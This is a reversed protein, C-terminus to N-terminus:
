SFTDEYDEEFDEDLDVEEIELADITDGVAEAADDLSDIAEELADTDEGEDEMEDIVDMLIGRINDLADAVQLLKEEKTANEPIEIVM